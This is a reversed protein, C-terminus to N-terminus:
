SSVHFETVMGAKYHAALNCVMLYRGPTLDLTLTETKGPQVDEVEGPSQGAADEDLESPNGAKLPLATAPLDTKLIVMEHAIQGKNTLEFTVKGAPVTTHDLGFQWERAQARVTTASQASGNSGCAALALAILALGGILLGRRNM